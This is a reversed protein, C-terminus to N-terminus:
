RTVTLVRVSSTSAAHAVDGGYVATLRHRGVGQRPLTITTVGRAARVMRVVRVSRAEDRITIPGTPALGAGSRVQVRVTPAQSKKVTARTLTLAVSTKAKPVVVLNSVAAGREYGVRDATVLVALVRGSDGAVPRYTTTTADAIAEWGTATANTRYWRYTFDPQPEGWSGSTTTLTGGVTPSGSVAPPASATIQEGLVPEVEASTAQGPALSGPSAGSARVSLVQDYDQSVLTYSQSTAGVIPQGDRLWQWGTTTATPQDWTPPTATVTAGIRAPTPITPPTTAAPSTICTLPPLLCPAASAVDARVVPVVLLAATSATTLLGLCARRPSRCTPPM